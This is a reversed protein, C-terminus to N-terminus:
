RRSRRGKMSQEQHKIAEWQKKLAPEDGTVMGAFVHPHRRIMKESITLLADDVDFEDQEDFMECLMALIYFLDGIEEQIHTPDGEDIAEVLEATEELLYKKISGPTQKKDWPCGDEARLKTIIEILDPLAHGPTKKGPM